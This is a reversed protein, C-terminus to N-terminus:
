YQFWRHLWFEYCIYKNNMDIAAQNFQQHLLIVLPSTAPDGLPNIVRDQCASHCILETQGVM